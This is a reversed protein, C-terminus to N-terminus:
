CWILIKELPFEATSKYTDLIYHKAHHLHNICWEYGSPLTYNVITKNVIDIESIGKSTCDEPQIECRVIANNVTFNKLKIM